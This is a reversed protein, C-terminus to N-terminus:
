KMNMYFAYETVSGFTDGAKLLISPFDPHSPSDPYHQTELCFGQYQYLPIGGKGAKENLSCSCYFQVGPMDSSCVLGIGTKPSEAKAMERM